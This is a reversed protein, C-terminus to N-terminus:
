EERPRLREALQRLQTFIIPKLLSITSDGHLKEAWNSDATALIVKTQDFRSESRIYRLIQEGSAGPLHLDLVVLDPVTGALRELAVAGDYITEAEYGARDVATEFVMAIDKSDEVVFVVPKM